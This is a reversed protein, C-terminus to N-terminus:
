YSAQQNTLAYVLPATGGAPMVAMGALEIEVAGGKPDADPFATMFAVKSGTVVLQGTGNNEKFTLSVSGTPAVLAVSTGAAGGTVTKRFLSLDDPVITLKLSHEQVGEYQDDAEVAASPDIAGVNNKITLEGGVVRASVLTSGLPDLSFTGGVPVLFAEVGTEDTGATFTSPYSFVTGALKASVMVPKSGEWKLTLEDVKCDRIGEITSDIGKAFVSLYPLDGTSYTHVYPGTGTVTDTGIAGLLYLGLSKLYAMTEISASNAVQDRYVNYAARKGATVELAAQTAEVVIPSGGTLGHAFTPNAAITGKSAQKAIGAVATFKQIPM